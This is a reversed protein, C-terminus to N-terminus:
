MFKNLRLVLNISNFIILSYICSNNEMKAKCYIINLQNRRKLAKRNRRNNIKEDVKLSSKSRPTQLAKLFHKLHYNQLNIANYQEKKNLEEFNKKKMKLYNKKVGRYLIRNLNSKNMSINNLIDECGSSRKSYIDPQCIKENKNNM